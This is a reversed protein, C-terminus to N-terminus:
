IILDELINFGWIPLFSWSPRWWIHKENRLWQHEKWGHRGWIDHSVYTRRCSFIRTNLNSYRNPRSIIDLDQLNWSTSGHPSWRAIDVSSVGPRQIQHNTSIHKWCNQNPLDATWKTSTGSQNVPLVLMTTCSHMCMRKSRTITAWQPDEQQYM